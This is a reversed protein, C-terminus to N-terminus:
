AQLWVATDDPLTGSAVDDSAILVRGEPLPIASGSLNVLCVLGGPRRFALCGDPAPLWDLSEGAFAPSSSRLALASRYLSQMSAPDGAQAEVTLTAWGEPMPLWTTSSSSFGYTPETGAWPMPIRCADRGREAHGSREWIPDQLAEDPLEVDPMGLEDGNYLYAAGPLALQLLAAARARRLGVPGDGYRTVHRPRDHNSLVWCAPAPTGAVAALSDTVADRLDDATWDATLLKFNFALQLEDDRLYQALRADDSVWVEGVAMTGPYEDLVSRIRRHVAHM